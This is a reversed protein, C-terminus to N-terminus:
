IIEECWKISHIIENKLLQRCSAFSKFIPMLQIQTGDHIKYHTIFECPVEYQSHVNKVNIKFLINCTHCYWKDRILGDLTTDCVSACFPCKSLSLDPIINTVYHSKDCFKCPNPKPINM